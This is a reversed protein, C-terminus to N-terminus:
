KGLFSKIWDIVGSIWDVFSIVNNVDEQGKEIRDTIAM